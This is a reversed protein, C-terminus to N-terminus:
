DIEGETSAQGERFLKVNVDDTPRRLWLTSCTFLAAATSPSTPQLRARLAARRARLSWVRYGQEVGHGYENPVSPTEVLTISFRNGDHYGVEVVGPDFLTENILAEAFEATKRSAEFDVAKVLVDNRERKYAKTFGVM